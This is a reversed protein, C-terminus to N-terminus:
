ELKEIILEISEDELSNSSDLHLHYGTRITTQAMSVLIRALSLLGAQNAKIIAGNGSKAVTIAFGEDWELSLGREPSYDPIHITIQM